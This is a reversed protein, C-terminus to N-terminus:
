ARPSRLNSMVTTLLPACLHAYFALAALLGLTAIVFVALERAMGWRVRRGPRNTM